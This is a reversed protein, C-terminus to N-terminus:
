QHIGTMDENDVILGGHERSELPHQTRRPVFDARKRRRRIEERRRGVFADAAHQEIQAHRVHAAEIDLVRHM